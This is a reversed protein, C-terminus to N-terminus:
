SAWPQTLPPPHAQSIPSLTLQCRHHRTAAWCKKLVRGISPSNGLFGSVRKGLRGTQHPVPMHDPSQGDPSPKLFSAHLSPSPVHFGNQFPSHHSMSKHSVTSRATMIRGPSQQSGHPRHQGHGRCSKWQVPECPSKPM